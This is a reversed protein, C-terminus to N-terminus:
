PLDKIVEVNDITGDRRVIGRWSWRVRFGPAARTMPILAACATRRKRSTAERRVASYVGANDTAV